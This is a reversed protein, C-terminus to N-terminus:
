SKQEQAYHCHRLQQYEIRIGTFSGPGLSVLILNIERFNLNAKTM